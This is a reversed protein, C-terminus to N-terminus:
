GDILGATEADVVARCSNRPNLGRARDLHNARVADNGREVVHIVKKPTLRELPDLCM